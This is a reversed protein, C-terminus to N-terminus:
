ILLSPKKISNDHMKIIERLTKVEYVSSNFQIIFQEIAEVLVKTDVIETIDMDTPPNDLLHKQGSLFNLLIAVPNDDIKKKHLDQMNEVGKKTEM